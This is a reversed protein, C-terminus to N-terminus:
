TAAQKSEWRERASSPTYSFSLFEHFSTKLVDASEVINSEESFAFLL